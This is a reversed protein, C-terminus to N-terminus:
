LTNEGEDLDLWISMEPFLNSKPSSTNQLVGASSYCAYKLKTTKSGFPFCFPFAVIFTLKMLRIGQLLVVLSLVM